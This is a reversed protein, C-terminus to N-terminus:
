DVISSYIISKLQGRFNFTASPILQTMFVVTLDEHPDVWFITSAAGGWYYDGAGIAGAEVEGLTSAFGLGFGVGDYATESFAGIAMTGLDGGGKLHNKRMLEITRPGLIRVGDLEGGDLLMQCFRAYDDLTGVLGGGGSQLAPERLLRGREPDDLLTLQKDAGRTYLATVRHAADPRVSFGADVMGLPDFITRRLHDGFVEGSIAEVLAACLDTSWSYLWHEGPHFRLPETALMRSLDRLTTGPDMKRAAGGEALNALDLRAEPPGYGIGTMHMLADRLQM